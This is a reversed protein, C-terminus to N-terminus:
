TCCVVDIRFDEHNHSYDYAWCGQTVLDNKVIVELYIDDQGLNTRVSNAPCLGDSQCGGGAYNGVITPTSSGAQDDTVSCHVLNPHTSSCWKVADNKYSSASRLNVCDVGPPSGGLDGDVVAQDLTKDLSAIFVEVDLHGPDPYHNGAYVTFGILSFLFVVFVTFTTKHSLTVIM